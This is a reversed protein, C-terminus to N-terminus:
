PSEAEAETEPTGTDKPRNKFFYARYEYWHRTMDFSRRERQYRDDSSKSFREYTQTDREVTSDLYSFNYMVLSAGVERAAAAAEADRLRSDSIITSSGLMQQGAEASQYAQDFDRMQLPDARNAGIVAVPADKPLPGSTQGTYGGLYPNNSCGTLLLLGLFGILATKHHM